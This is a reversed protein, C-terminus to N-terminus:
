QINASEVYGFQFACYKRRSFGAEILRSYQFRGGFWRLLYANIIYFFFVVASNTILFENRCGPM